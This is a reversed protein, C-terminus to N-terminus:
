IKVKVEGIPMPEQNLLDRRFKCLTEMLYFRLHPEILDFIPKSQDHLASYTASTQPDCGQADGYDRYDKPQNENEM